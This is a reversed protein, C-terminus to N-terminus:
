DLLPGSGGLAKFAAICASFIRRNPKTPDEMDYNYCFHAVLKVWELPRGELDNELPPVSFSEAEILKELEVIEKSQM